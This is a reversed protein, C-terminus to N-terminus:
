KPWSAVGEGSKFPTKCPRLALSCLLPSTPIYIHPPSPTAWSTVHIGAYMRSVCIKRHPHLVSRLPFGCQLLLRWAPHHDWAKEAKTWQHLPSGPAMEQVGWAGAGSIKSPDFLLRHCRNRKGGIACDGGTKCAWALDGVAM